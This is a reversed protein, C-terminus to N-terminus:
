KNLYFYIPLKHQRATYTGDPEESEEVIYVVNPGFTKEEKVKSFLDPNKRFAENTSDDAEFIYAKRHLPLTYDAHPKYREPQLYTSMVVKEGSLFTLIHSLTRCALGGRIQQSALYDLIESYSAARATPIDRYFIYNGYGFSALILLTLIVATLKFKKWVIEGLFFALIGVLGIYAPALYRAAELTSWINAKITLLLILFYIWVYSSIIGTKPWVLTKLNKWYCIITIVIAALSIAGFVMWGTKLLADPHVYFGDGLGLLFQPIKQTFILQLRAPFESFSIAGSKQFIRLGKGGALNFLIAPSYGVLLGGFMPGLNSLMLLKSFPQSHMFYVVLVELTFALFLKKMVKIQFPPIAGFIKFFKQPIAPNNAFFVATLHILIFVALFIHWAILVKRLWGPLRFYALKAFNWIWRFLSDSQPQRFRCLFYLLFPILFLLFFESVWLAAGVILGFFFLLPGFFFKQPGDFYKALLALAAAQFLWLEAHGGWVRMSVDMVSPPMLIFFLSSFIAVTRNAIRKMLFYNVTFFSLFFTLSTLRIALATHGFLAIFPAMVLSCFSGSYSHGSIYIPIEGGLIRKAMLAFTAEDFDILSGAQLLFPIRVLIAVILLIILEM